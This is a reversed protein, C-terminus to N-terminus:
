YSIEDGVRCRVHNMGEERALVPSILFFIREKTTRDTTNMANMPKPDEAANSKLSLFQGPLDQHLVCCMLKDHGETNKM